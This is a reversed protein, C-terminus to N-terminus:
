RRKVLSAHSSVLLWRSKRKVYVNTYRLDNSYTVENLVFRQTVRGTVVSTDGYIRVQVDQPEYPEIKIGPVSLERIFERKTRLAGGTTILVFDSALNEEFWVADGAWTAVAIERDLRHLEEVDGAHLLVPAIALTIALLSRM